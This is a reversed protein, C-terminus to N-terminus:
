VYVSRGCVVAAVIEGPDDQVFLQVAADVEQGLSHAVRPPMARGHPVHQEIARGAGALAHDGLSEGDGRAQVPRDHATAIHNTADTLALPIM